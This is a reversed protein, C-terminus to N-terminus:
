SLDSSVNSNSVLYATKLKFNCLLGVIKRIEKSSNKQLIKSYGKVAKSLCHEKVQRSTLVFGPGTIPSRTRCM